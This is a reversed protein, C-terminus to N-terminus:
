DHSSYWMAGIDIATPDIEVGAYGIAAIIRGWNADEGFIATKVLSSGVISKAVM